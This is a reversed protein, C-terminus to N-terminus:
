RKKTVKYNCSDSLMRSMKREIRKAAKAAKWESAKIPAKARPKYVGAARAYRKEMQAKQGTLPDTVVVYGPKAVYTMKPQIPLIPPNYNMLQNLGGGVTPLQSTNRNAEQVVQPGIEVAQAEDHYFLLILDQLIIPWQFITSTALQSLLSGVAGLTTLWDVFRSIIDPNDQYSQLVRQRNDGTGPALLPNLFQSVYNVPMGQSAPSYGGNGYQGGPADDQGFIREGFWDFFGTEQGLYIGADVWWPPQAGGTSGGTSGWPPTWGGGSGGGFQWFSNPYM